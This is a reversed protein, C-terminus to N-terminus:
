ADGAGISIAALATGMSAPVAVTSTRTRMLKSSSHDALGRASRGCIRIWILASRRARRTTKDPHGGLADFNQVTGIGAVSGDHDFPVQLRAADVIGQQEGGYARHRALGEHGLVEPFEGILVRRQRDLSPLGDRLGIDDRAHQLKGLDLGAISYELDAGARAV